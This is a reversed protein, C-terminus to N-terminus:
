KIPLALQWQDSYYDGSQLLNSGDFFNPLERRLIPLIDVIYEKTRSPEGQLKIAEYVTYDETELVMDGVGYDIDVLPSFAIAYTTEDAEFTVDFIKEYIEMGNIHIAIQDPHGEVLYVERNNEPNPSFIMEEGGSPSFRPSDTRDADVSGYFGGLYSIFTPVFLGMTEGQASFGLEEATLWKEARNDETQVPYPETSQSTQTVDGSGSNSFERDTEDSVVDSANDSVIDKGRGSMDSLAGSQWVGVGLLAILCSCVTVSGVKIIKKKRRRNDAIIKESRQFVDEAVERYDKM